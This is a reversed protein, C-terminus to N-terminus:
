RGVAFVQNLHLLYPPMLGALNSLPLVSDDLAIGLAHRMFHRRSQCRRLTAPFHTALDQTLQTDALAYSDELRASYYTKSSPIVDSQLIM